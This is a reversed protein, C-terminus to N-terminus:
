IGTEIEECRNFNQDLIHFCSTYDNPRGGFLEVCEALERQARNLVGLKTYGNEPQSHLPINNVDAIYYRM